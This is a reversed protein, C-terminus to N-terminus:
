ELLTEVFAPTSADNYHITSYKVGNKLGVVVGANEGNGEEGLGKLVALCKRVMVGSDKAFAGRESARDLLIIGEVMAKMLHVKETKGMEGDKAVIWCCMNAIKGLAIKVVDDSERGMAKKLATGAGATLPGAEAIWMSIQNAMTESVSVQDPFKGVSRRYFSFDNQLGPCMMKKQDVDYM